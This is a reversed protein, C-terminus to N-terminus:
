TMSGGEGGDNTEIEKIISELSFATAAMVEIRPSPWRKNIKNINKNNHKQRTFAAAAM